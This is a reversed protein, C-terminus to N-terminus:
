QARAKAIAGPLLAFALAAVIALGILLTTKSAVATAYEGAFETFSASFSTDALPQRFDPAEVRQRAIQIAVPSFYKARGDLIYAAVEDTLNVQQAASLQGYEAATGTLIPPSLGLRRAVNVTALRFNSSFQEPTTPNAYFVPFGVPYLEAPM